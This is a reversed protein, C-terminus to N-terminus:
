ICVVKRLYNIKNLLDININTLHEYDSYIIHELTDKGAEYNGNQIENFAQIYLNNIFNEINCQEKDKKDPLSLSYSEYYNNIVYDADAISCKKNVALSQNHKAEEGIFSNIFGGKSVHDHNQHIAKICKSANIIPIKNEKAYWVLWNDFAPSGIVFDPIDKDKYMGKPFIFYDIAWIGNSVGEEKVQKQVMEICEPYDYNIQKFLNISTREGIILFNGQENIDKVTNIVNMIENDLLLIDSNIYCCINNNSLLQGQKFISSILPKSNCNDLDKYYKLNNIQAFNEVGYDFGLLIVEPQPKIIELWSNIANTQILGLHNKFEKPCTFISLM